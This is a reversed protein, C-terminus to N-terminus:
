GVERVNRTDSVRRAALAALDGVHYMSRGREDRRREIMHGREKWKRWTPKPVDPFIIWADELTVYQEPRVEPLAQLTTRNVTMWWSRDGWTIGCGTCRHADSLGTPLPQFDKDAWDRVITGGCHVCPGNQRQPLLHALRRAHHRLQRMETRYDEWAANTPNHAAWLTRAKLTDLVPAATNDGTHEAWMGAWSWLVTLIDAPHNVQADDHGNDHGAQETRDRDYRIAPVLSRPQHQWHGLADAIDDLVRHEHDLCPTCILNANGTPHAGKRPHDTITCTPTTETCDTCQWTDHDTTPTWEHRHTM